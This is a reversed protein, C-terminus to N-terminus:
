AGGIVEDVTTPEVPKGFEAQVKRPWRNGPFTGSLPAAYRVRFCPKNFGDQGCRHHCAGGDPCRLRGWKEDREPM